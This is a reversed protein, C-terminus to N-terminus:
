KLLSTIFKFLPVAEVPTKNGIIKVALAGVANGIFGAIDLPLNKAVVCSTISLFADGAGTRDVIENSFIPIDVFGKTSDYVCAGNHGRTVIVKKCSLKKSIDKILDKINGYKDHMALRIEPEDICVYDCKKYKTVLNYGMNASNSQANVCLFKSRKCLVSVIKENIFGHGFDAVIVVDYKPLEQELYSCISKSIDDPLPSDDVYNIEFMKNLFAPNVFRRKVVTPVDKRVFLKKSINSFLNEDVFKKYNNKTGLVSVLHVTKAFNAVHKAVALAGGTFTEEKLYKTSIIDDKSPKGMGMCYHYEDIIIDGIVLVKLNGIGKLIDIVNEASIRNKFKKLFVDADKPYVSFYQNLLSSSSFAIDETFLIKGKVSRVADEEDYIKGTLDEEKKKYDSGKCYVAPKLKKITNVATPWKNIAVYDVCSLAAISEARLRQNFVPRGPGKNVHEDKTITVILIDGHKKAAEFHRIHGPHLLDFVGHSLIIKKGQKSLKATIKALEEIDKIKNM